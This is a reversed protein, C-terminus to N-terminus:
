PMLDTEHDTLTPYGDSWHVEGTAQIVSRCCAEISLGKLLGGIVFLEMFSSHGPVGQGLGSASAVVVRGDGKLFDILSLSYCSEFVLILSKYEITVLENAWNWAGIGSVGVNGHGSHLIFVSSEEDTRERLWALADIIKQYPNEDGPMLVLVHTRDYGYKNKLARYTARVTNDGGINEGPYGKSGLVLAWKNAATPPM